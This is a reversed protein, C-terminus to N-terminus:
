LKLETSTRYDGLTGRAFTNFALTYRDSNNKKNEEVYHNLSSPFIFLTNSNNPMSWCDSNSVNYEHRILDMMPFLSNCVQRQFSLPSSGGTIFFVGSLLSNFHIHANHFQNKNVWSETLYFRTDRVIKLENHAFDCISDLIFHKFTKLDPLDLVHRNFKDVSEIMVEKEKNTLTYNQTMYVPQPFLNIIDPM